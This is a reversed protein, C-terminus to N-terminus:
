TWVKRWAEPGYLQFVQCLSTESTILAFQMGVQPCQLIFFLYIYFFGAMSFLHGFYIHSIFDSFFFFLIHFSLLTTKQKNPTNKKTWIEGMEYVYMSLSKTRRRAATPLDWCYGNLLPELSAIIKHSIPHKENGAEAGPVFLACVLVPAAQLLHLCTPSFQQGHSNHLCVGCNCQQSTPCMSLSYRVKLALHSLPPHKIPLPPCFVQHAQHVM